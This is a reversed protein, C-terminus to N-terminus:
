IEALTIGDSEFYKLIQIEVMKRKNGKSKDYDPKKQWYTIIYYYFIFVFGIRRDKYYVLTIHTCHPM